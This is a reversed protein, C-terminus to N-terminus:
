KSVQCPEVDVPLIKGEADFRMLSICTERKYGSGDPIAFRHYADIDDAKKGGFSVLAPVMDKAQPHSESQSQYVAGMPSPREM